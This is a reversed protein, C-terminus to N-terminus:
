PSPAGPILDRHPALYEESSWVRGPALGPEHVACNIGPRKGSPLAAPAHHQASLGM